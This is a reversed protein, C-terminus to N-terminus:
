REIEGFGPQWHVYGRVGGFSGCPQVRSVYGGAFNGAAAPTLMSAGYWYGTPLAPYRGPESQGSHGDRLTVM